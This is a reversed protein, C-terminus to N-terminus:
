VATSGLQAGMFANTAQVHVTANTLDLDNDPSEFLGVVVFNGNEIATIEDNSRGTTTDGGATASTDAKGVKVHEGVTLGTLASATQVEFVWGAAPAM